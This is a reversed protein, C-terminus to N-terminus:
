IKPVKSEELEETLLRRYATDAPATEVVSKNRSGDKRAISRVELPESEANKPGSLLNRSYDSAYSRDSEAALLYENDNAVPVIGFPESTKRAEFLDNEENQQVSHLFESDDGSWVM